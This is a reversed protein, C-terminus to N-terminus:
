FAGAVALGGGDPALWGTVTSSEASRRHLVVWVGAGILAVAGVAATAGGLNGRMRAKDRLDLARQYDMKEAKSDSDLAKASILLGTGVGLAVLGGGGLGL